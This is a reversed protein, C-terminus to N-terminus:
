PGSARAMQKMTAAMQKPLEMLNGMKKVIFSSRMILKMSTLIYDKKFADSM